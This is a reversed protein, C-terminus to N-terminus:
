DRNARGIIRIVAFAVAIVAIAISVGKMLLDNGSGGGAAPQTAGVIAGAIGLAAAVTILAVRRNRAVADPDDRTGTSHSLATRIEADTLEPHDRQYDRVVQEVRRGLERSHQTPPAAQPQMPIFIM